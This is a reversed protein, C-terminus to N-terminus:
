KRCKLVKDLVVIGKIEVSVVEVKDLVAKNKLQNSKSVLASVAAL